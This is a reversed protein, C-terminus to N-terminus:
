IKRFGIWNAPSSLFFVCSYDLRIFPRIKSVKKRSIPPPARAVHWNTARNQVTYRRVVKNNFSPPANNCTPPMRVAANPLNPWGSTFCRYYILPSRAALTGWTWNGLLTYRAFGCGLFLIRSTRALSLPRYTAIGRRYSITTWRVDSFTIVKAVPLSLSLSLTEPAFFTRRSKRSRRLRESRQGAMRPFLRERGEDGRALLKATFKM